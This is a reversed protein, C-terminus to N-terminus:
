PCDKYQKVSAHLLGNYYANGANNITGRPNFVRCEVVVSGLETLGAQPLIGSQFTFPFANTYPTNAGTTVVGTVFGTGTVARFAGILQSASGRKVYILIQTNSVVFGPGPGAIANLKMNVVLLGKNLSPLLEVPATMTQIEATTEGAPPTGTNETFTNGYFGIAPQIKGNLRQSDCEWLKVGAQGIFRQSEILKNWNDVGPVCPSGGPIPLTQPCEPVSINSRIAM